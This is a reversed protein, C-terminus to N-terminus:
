ARGLGSQMIAVALVGALESRLVFPAWRAGIFQTQQLQKVEAGSLGGEPGVVVALSLAQAAYEKLVVSLLMSGDVAGFIGLTENSTEKLVHALADKYEISPIFLRGSQRCADQAVRMFREQKNVAKKYCFPESREANFVVFKDVGIECGRKITETLKSEELAAQMLIITPKLPLSVQLIGKIFHARQHQKDHTVTGVVERGCGDFVGVIEDPKIRVVSFFRAVVEAPLEHQNNQTFRDIWDKDVFSRHM